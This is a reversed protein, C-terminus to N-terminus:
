SLLDELVLEEKDPNLQVGLWETLETIFIKQAPTHPAPTNRDIKYAKQWIKWIEQQIQIKSMM